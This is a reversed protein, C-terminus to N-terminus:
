PRDGFEPRETRTRKLEWFGQVNMMAVLADWMALSDDKPPVRTIVPGDYVGRFQLQGEDTGQLYLTIRPDTRELALVQDHLGKLAEQSHPSLALAANAAGEAAALGATHLVPM